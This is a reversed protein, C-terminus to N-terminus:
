ALEQDVCDEKGPDLLTILACFAFFFDMRFCSLTISAFALMDAVVAM